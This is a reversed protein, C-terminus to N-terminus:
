FLSQHDLDASSGWELRPNLSWYVTLNDRPLYYYAKNLALTLESISELAQFKTTKDTLIDQVNLIEQPSDTIHNIINQFEVLEMFIVTDPSTRAM